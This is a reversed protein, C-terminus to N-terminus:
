LREILREVKGLHRALAEPTAEDMRYQGLWRTRCRKACIARVGRLLTRRGPDGVLRIWWWPSGYSTIGVLVRINTMLGRIPQQDEPLTFARHPLWVRDFWGKLMAPLGYWWTPYVLILAEAWAIHAIHAEVAGDDRTKDNYTLREARSLAPQFGEGYLDLLRAEFGRRALGAMVVDKVAACFSTEVPHGFVVLTRM